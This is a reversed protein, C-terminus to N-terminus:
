TTMAVINYVVIGYNCYVHKRTSNRTILTVRRYKYQLQSQQARPLHPVILSQANEAPIRGPLSARLSARPSKAPLADPYAFPAPSPAQFPRSPPARRESAPECCSYRRHGPPAGLPSSVPVKWNNSMRSKKMESLM